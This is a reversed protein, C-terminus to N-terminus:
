RVVKKTVKQNDSSVTVFVLQQRPDLNLYVKDNITTLSKDEIVKQGLINTVSITSKTAKDYDFKVYVGNVDNNILVSKDLVEEKTEDVSMSVDMCVRLEFRPTSTTDSITCVYGGTKLDHTTNLLKDKLIVCSNPLNELDSGTITHQGTAYVKVLVPIVADATQAYPLSNISYDENGSKTSITTRQTYVGPYGLYGPSAFLKHADLKKDFDSTANEHFRIATGDSFGGGDVRLRVVSGINTNATKLLPANSRVKDTEEFGINTANTVQVYFAQGMPITDTIGGGFSGVGAVYSTPGSDPNYVYIADGLDINGANTGNALVSEWSIPAPFPNAILNYGDGNSPGSYSLPIVQSGQVVSGQVTWTINGTTGLNDGLFVWYGEGTNLPSTATKEVYALSSSAAATEDWGQISVFYGGASVQDNICGVCTMPIQGDWDAFTKSSIGSVGINTWDTAGGAAFTEVKVNGSVLGGVPGISGKSTANSRIFLNGAAQSNITGGTPYVTGYVELPNGLILTKTGRNMTLESLSRLSASTQVMLLQNTIAATAAGGITLSSTLSGRFGKGSLNTPFTINGNLTLLTGNLDVVGNAFSAPGSVILDNGLTFIASTNTIGLIFSGLSKTVSNTQDMYLANMVTTTPNGAVTLSSSASGILYGDTASPPFQVNGRLNLHRGNLNVNGGTLIASLAIVDSGLILTAGSKNMTLLALSSSAGAGLILNNTITGSGDVVLSSTASGSFIGNSSTAPFTVDSLFSLARGNINVSGNTLSAIGNVSFNNGLTLLQGARNFTFDNVDGSGSFNLTGVSGSGDIVLHSVATAISGTCAIPGSLRTNRTGSSTMQYICGSAINFNGAVTLNQGPQSKTGSGSITLNGYTTGWLTASGTQAFDITSNSALNVNTLSPFTSNAITLTSLNTVNLVAGSSVTLAFGSPITFNIKNGNTGDGVNLFSNAGSFTWANPLTVSAANQIYFNQNASTFDPPNSGTGNVNTGWSSVLTINNVGNWYYSPSPTGTIKVDDIAVYNLGGGGVSTYTWRFAIITGNATAPLSIPSVVGWTNTGTPASYSLTNWTAGADRTWQLTLSPSLSPNKKLENWGIQINVFTGTNIPVTGVEQLVGTTASGGFLKSGGSSGGVNCVPITPASSADDLIWDNNFTFSTIAGLNSGVGFDEPFPPINTQSFGSGVVLSLFLIFIKKM